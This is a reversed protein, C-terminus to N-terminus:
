SGYIQESTETEAAIGAEALAQHYDVPTNLNRLTALKPDVISMM